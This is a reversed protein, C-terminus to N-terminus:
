YESGFTALILTLFVKMSADPVSSRSVVLNAVDLNQVSPPQACPVLEKSRTIDIGILVDSVADMELCVPPTEPWEWSEIHGMEVHLKHSRYAGETGKDPLGQRLLKLSYAM